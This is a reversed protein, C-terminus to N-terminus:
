YSRGGRGKITGMAKGGGGPKRGTGQTISAPNSMVFGKRSDAGKPTPNTTNTNLQGKKGITTKKMKKSPM